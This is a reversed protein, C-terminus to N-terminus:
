SEKERKQQYEKVLREQLDRPSRAYNSFEMTFEGKGQTASRLETSYDFM